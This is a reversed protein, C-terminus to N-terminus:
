YTNPVFMEIGNWLLPEVSIITKVVIQNIQEFLQDVDLQRVKKDSSRSKLTHLYDKFKSLNWKQAGNSPHVEFQQKESLSFNQMDAMRQQEKVKDAATKGANQRAAQEKRKRAILKQINHEWEV